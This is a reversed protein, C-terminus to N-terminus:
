RRSARGGSRGAGARGLYRPAPVRRGAPGARHVARGAAPGGATVEDGAIYGLEELVACVRGFTRALVHSRGSVRQELAEAERELRARRALDRLHLQLDPCGHCPHQRLRRRLASSRRRRRRREPRRGRPRKPLEAGPWSTGCRPPWTAAASGALAPQVLAPDQDARDPQGAGPLRGGVAAEGAPGATLVLPLPRGDAAGGPQLVVAVGAQRGGPVDIIDGPRLKEMSAMAEASGPRRASGPSTGSSSASSAGSRTTATSTASTAASRSSRRDARRLRGAQRALGVVGRDAQFQAFSSELLKAARARGVQGVLNVAMNYTPRFSSNLPYTRTGALGAM